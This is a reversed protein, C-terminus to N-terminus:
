RDTGSSGPRETSAPRRYLVRGPRLRAVVEFGATRFLPDCFEAWGRPIGLVCHGGPRAVRWLESVARAVDSEEMCCLVGLSLLVDASADAFPLRAGTGRVRAAAFPPDNTRSGRALMGRQPDVVACRAYAGPPASRVAEDTAV